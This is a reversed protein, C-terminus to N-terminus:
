GRKNEMIIFFIYSIIIYAQTKKNNKENDRKM